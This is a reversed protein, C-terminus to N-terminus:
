ERAKQILIKGLEHSRGGHGFSGGGYLNTAFARYGEAEIRYQIPSAAYCVFPLWRLDTDKKLDFTGHEDTRVVRTRNFAEIHRVVRAHAVPRLDDSDVVQGSAQPAILEGHPFIVCGTLSILLLLALLLVLPKM